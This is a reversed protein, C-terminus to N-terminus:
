RPGVGGEESRRGGEEAKRRGGKAGSACDLRIRQGVFTESDRKGTWSRIEIKYPPTPARDRNVCDLDSLIRGCNSGEKRFAVVGVEDNTIQDILRFAHKIREEEDWEEFLGIEEGSGCFYLYPYDEKSTDLVLPHTIASNPPPIELRLIYGCQRREKTAYQMLDPKFEELYHFTARALDCMDRDNIPLVIRIKRLIGVLRSHILESKYSSEFRYRKVLVPMQERDIVPAYWNLCDTEFLDHWGNPRLSIEAVGPPVIKLDWFGHIRKKLAKLHDVQYSKENVCKLMQFPGEWALYHKKYRVRQWATFHESKIAMQISHGRGGDSFLFYKLRPLHLRYKWLTMIATIGGLITAIALIINIM